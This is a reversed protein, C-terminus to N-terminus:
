NFIRRTTSARKQSSRYRWLFTKKLVNKLYKGALYQLSINNNRKKKRLWINCLIIRKGYIQRLQGGGGGRYPNHFVWGTQIRTSVYKVEIEHILNTVEFIYRMLRSIDTLNNNLIEHFVANFTVMQDVMCQKLNINQVDLLVLRSQMLEINQKLSEIESSSNEHNLSQSEWFVFFCFCLLCRISLVNLTKKLMQFWSKM